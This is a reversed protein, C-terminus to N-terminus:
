FQKNKIAEWISEGYSSLHFRLWKSHLEILSYGGDCTLLGLREYKAFLLLDQYNMYLKSAEGKLIKPDLNIISDIRDFFPPAILKNLEPVSVESTCRRLTGSLKQSTKFVPRQQKAGLMRDTLQYLSSSSVNGFLDKAAGKLGYRLLYTFRGHEFNSQSFDNRMTAGLFTVGRRLLSLEQKLCSTNFMAGAFCCDFIVTIEPIISDNIKEALWSFSVGPTKSNADSDVGCLYTESGNTGGHGSFYFLAHEIAEERDLLQIFQGRIYDNSVNHLKAQIQFNPEGNEHNELLQEMIDADAKATYLTSAYDYISNGIILALKQVAM